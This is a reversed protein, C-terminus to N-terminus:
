AFNRSGDAILAESTDNHSLGLEITCDAVLRDIEPGSFGILTTFRHMLSTRGASLGKM